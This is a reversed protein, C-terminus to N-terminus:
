KTIPHRQLEGRLSCESYRPLRLCGGRRGGVVRVLSPPRLPPRKRRGLYESHERLPSGCLCGIVLYHDLNHRPERVTVNWFLRFDTGIIYDTRSRVERGVRVISWTRGERCWPCRRPLLHTLMDELGATTPAESTEEERWDGEPEALKVNLDGAVLLKAGWPHEKLAAVLSEVTSTYDLPLYYGVIYWQWEGTDLQLNIVNPRFQQVAEVVYRPSPRYFVTVRSRHLSPVDMAVISYGASGHTYVGNTLKTEQFIVLDMNAQSIGRLALELGGNWGNCINYTCFM